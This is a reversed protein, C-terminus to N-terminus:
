DVPVGQVKVAPYYEGGQGKAVPMRHQALFRVLDYVNVWIQNSGDKQSEDFIIQLGFHLHPTKINNTNEQASYGTMGLYGIVDGASVRGGEALAPHFPRNKRLHAYYYYRKGDDSRIGVRWGGYQNWGLAEVVGDEVAIIPAGVSGMLDNGLHRRRYGYSRSVGFDNYHSYYFGQAIPSFVKLGYVREMEGERERDYEGVFGGLVASFTEYYFSYLKLGQALEAMAAGQALRAAGEDIAKSKKGREFKGWGKAAGYALLEVWDVPRETGHARIDYALAQALVEAPVNFEMWKIFEGQGAAALSFEMNEEGNDERYYAEEAGTPFLGVGGYLACFLLAGLICDKLFERVRM